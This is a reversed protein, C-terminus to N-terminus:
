GVVVILGSRNGFAVNKRDSMNPWDDRDEFGVSGGKFYYAYDTTGSNNWPWPWGQDPTTADGERKSFEESVAARFEEGTKASSIACEPDEAWEYGDWAVSGIWEADKGTGIYFDARTGM